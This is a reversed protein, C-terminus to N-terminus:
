YPFDDGIALAGFPEAALSPFTKALYDLARDAYAEAAEAARQDAAEANVARYEAEGEAICEADCEDAEFNSPMDEDNPFYGFAMAQVRENISAPPV